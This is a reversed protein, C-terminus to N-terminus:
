NRVLLVYGNYSHKSGKYDTISILYYYVGDSVPHGSFTRGSWGSTPKDWKYILEGWRNYIECSSSKIGKGAVYFVDNIGDGNPTFVNPIEPEFVTEAFIDVYFTDTCTSYTNNVAILSVTYNGENIYEHSPNVQTNLSTGDGFSWYYTGANTSQNTFSYNLGDNIFSFLALVNVSSDAVTINKVIECGNNDTITVSYNGSIL